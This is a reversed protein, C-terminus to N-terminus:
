YLEAVSETLLGPQRVREARKENGLRRSTDVPPKGELTFRPKRDVPFEDLIEEVDGIRSKKVKGSLPRRRRQDEKIRLKEPSQM